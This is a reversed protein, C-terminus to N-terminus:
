RRRHHGLRRRHHLPPPHRRHHPHGHRRHRRREPTRTARRHHRSPRTTRLHGRLQAHSRLLRSAHPRARALPGPRHRHRRRRPLRPRHDRLRRPATGSTPCWRRTPTRRHRRPLHPHQPPPHPCRRRTRWRPAADLPQGRRHRHTPRARRHPRTVVHRAPPLHRLLPRPPRTHRRQPLGRLLVTRRPRLRAHTTRSSRVPHQLPTRHPGPGPNGPRPPVPRGHCRRAGVRNACHGLPQTPVRRRHR